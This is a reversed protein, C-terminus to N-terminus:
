IHILSLNLVMVWRGDASVMPQHGAPSLDVISLRRQGLAVGVTDDLWVGQDDPGRHRVAASMRHVGDTLAGIHPSLLGVVGCM